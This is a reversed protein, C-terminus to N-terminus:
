AGALPMAWMRRSRAIDFGESRYLALAAENEGDVALTVPGPGERELWGVGWRLLARGLGLGRADHATGLTAVEGRGPLLECRCFGAVRGRVYALLVGDNRFGPKSAFQRLQEVTSPVYRFHRAFSDNYCDNYDTLATDSGDFVRLEVGAPWRPEPPAAGRSREMLWFWREQRYGLSPFLALTEPSPEWAAVSLEGIGPTHRQERVFEVLAAHLARAAGRRRLAPLVGGRLAGWAAPPGPILFAFAFGAPAGDVFALWIGDEPAYPDALLREVGQPSDFTDFHERVGPARLLSLLLTSDARTFPRVTVSM